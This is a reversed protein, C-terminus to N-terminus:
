EADTWEQRRSRIVTLALGSGLLLAGLAIGPAPSSSGTFALTTLDTCVTGAAKVTFTWSADGDLTDDPDHPAATVTHVGPKVSVTQTAMPTLSGDLFYDVYPSFFAVGDVDGVTITADFTKGGDCTQDTHTVNTPFDALTPIQCIGSDDADFVFHTQGSGFHYAASAPSSDITVDTLSLPVVVPGPTPTGGNVSWLVGEIEPLYLNTGDVNSDCSVTPPDVFSISGCGTVQSVTTYSTVPYATGLHIGQAILKNAPFIASMEDITAPQAQSGLGSTIKSTWVKTLNTVTFTGTQGQAWGNQYPEISITAFGTTGTRWIEYVLAAHYGSASTITYSSGVVGELNGSVSHLYDVAPGGPGTGTFLKGGPQDTPAADGSETYWTSSQSVCPDSPCTGYHNVDYAAVADSDVVTKQAYLDWEADGVTALTKITWNADTAKLTPSGGDLYFENHPLVANDDSVSSVTGFQVWGNGPAPATYVADNPDTSGDGTGTFYIVTNNLTFYLSGPESTTLEIGTIKYAVSPGPSPLYGYAGLGVNGTQAVTYPNVNAANVLDDPVQYYTGADGQVWEGAFVHGKITTTGPQTADFYWGKIQKHEVTYITTTKTYKYTDHSTSAMGPIEKIFQYEEHNVEAVADFHDTSTICEGSHDDVAVANSALAGTTAALGLALTLSALSALIKKLM